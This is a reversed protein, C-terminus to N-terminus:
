VPFLLIFYHLDLVQAPGHTGQPHHCPLAPLPPRLLWSVELFLLGPWSTAEAEARLDAGPVPTRLVYMNPASNPLHSVEPEEFNQRLIFPRLLLCIQPLLVQVNLFCLRLRFGDSSVQPPLHRSCFQSSSPRQAGREGSRRSSACMWGCGELCCARPSTPQLALHLVQTPAEM